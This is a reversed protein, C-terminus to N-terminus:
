FKGFAEMFETCLQKLTVDPPNKDIQRTEFLM